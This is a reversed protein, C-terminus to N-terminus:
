GRGVQLTQIRTVHFLWTTPVPPFGVDDAFLYSDLIM